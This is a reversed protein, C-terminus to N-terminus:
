SVDRLTVPGAPPCSRRGLFLPYTPHRLAHELTDLLAPDAEVAAVFAADGLYFRNSLPMSRAGDLTRATQFDRVVKGPQDVRVGFRLGLLDEISDTRRRGLAAALLGIVGSKSPERGSERRVFRSSTGWAELPGALRLVLATM